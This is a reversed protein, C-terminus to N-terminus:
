DFIIRILCLMVQSNGGAMAYMQSWEVSLDDSLKVLAVANVEQGGAESWATSTSLM